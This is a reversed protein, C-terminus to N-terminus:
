HREGGSVPPPAFTLVRTARAAMRGGVLQGADYYLLVRGSDRLRGLAFTISTGHGSLITSDQHKWQVGDWPGTARQHESALIATVETTRGMPTRIQGLLTDIEVGRLEPLAEGGDLEWGYPMAEITLEARAVPALRTSGTLALMERYEPESLGLKPHYPLPEGPTASQVYATFWEPDRQAAQQLRATLETLRPPASFQMVDVAITGTTLLAAVAMGPVPPSQPKSQTLATGPLALLLLALVSRRPAMPFRDSFTIVGTLGFNLLSRRSDVRASTRSRLESAPVRM